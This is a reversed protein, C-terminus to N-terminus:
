SRIIMALTTAFEGLYARNAAVFALFEEIHRAELIRLEAGDDLDYTCM